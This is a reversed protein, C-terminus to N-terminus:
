LLSSQSSWFSADFSAPCFESFGLFQQLNFQDQPTITCTRYTSSATTSVDISHQRIYPQSIEFSQQTECANAINSGLPAVSRALAIIFGGKEEQIVVQADCSETGSVGYFFTGCKGQHEGAVIQVKEGRKLTSQM